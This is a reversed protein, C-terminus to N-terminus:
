LATPNSPLPITYMWIQGKAGDDCECDGDYGDGNAMSITSVLCWFSNEEGRVGVARERTCHIYRSNLKFAVVDTTNWCLLHKLLVLSEDLREALMVLDFAADIARVFEDVAAESDYPGDFGLDFSMQNLGVHGRVLRHRSLNRTLNEDKVFATLNREFISAFSCYSYLSEFLSEPRRLITIYLTDQPMLLRIEEANFRTHHTLINYTMNCASLDAVLYRKFHQPHGLYHTHQSRPLVFNLRHASGFRLFINMVTTSACKHTKLFVINTRPSACPQLYSTNEPWTLASIAYQQM